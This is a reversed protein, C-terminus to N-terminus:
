RARKPASIDRLKNQQDEGLLNKLRILHLLESKRRQHELTLIREIRALAKAEDVKAPALLALLAESEPAIQQDSARMEAERQQILTTLAKAQEDTLAIKDRSDLILKPYFLSPPLGRGRQQAGTAGSLLLIGVSLAAVRKLTRVGTMM